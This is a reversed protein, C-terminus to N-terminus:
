NIRRFEVNDVTIYNAAEGGCKIVVYVTGSQAFTMPNGSHDGCGVQSIKGTFPATACGAWTNLAFRVGGASYDNGQVPATPSVFVEFWTNVSGPGSVSMDIMYEAGAVVEVAQYIAKQNYGSATVTATGDAFVWDAGSSSINLVTWQDSGAEFKDNLILNGAIPDPTTVTLTMSSTNSTGGSGYVTHEITYSGADPLFIETSSGGQYPGAGINWFNSIMDGSTAQLLFRNPSNDIPTITFASNVDPNTLPNGSDSDEPQCGPLSCLMLALVLYIAKKAIHNM